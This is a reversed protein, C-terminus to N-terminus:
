KIMGKARYCDYDQDFYIVFLREIKKKCFPCLGKKKYVQLICTQCFGSHNCPQLLIQNQEDCCITCLDEDEDLFSFRENVKDFFNQSVKQMDIRVDKFFVSMEASQKKFFKDVLINVNRKYKLYIRLFVVFIVVLDFMLIYPQLKLFMGITGLKKPKFSINGLNILLLIYFMIICLPVQLLFFYVVGLFKCFKRYLLGNHLQALVRYVIFSMVTGGMSTMILQFTLGFSGCPTLEPNMINFSYLFFAALNIYCILTGFLFYKDKIQSAHFLVLLILYIAMCLYTQWVYAHDRVFLFYLTFLFFECLEKLLGFM